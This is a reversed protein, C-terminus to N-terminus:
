QVRIVRYFGAGDPRGVPTEESSSTAMRADQVNDWRSFNTSYQVQYVKGPEASWTLRLGKSTSALSVKIDNLGQTGVSSGGPLPAPPLPPLSGTGPRNAEVILGGGTGSESGTAPQEVLYKQGRLDFSTDGMFSAWAVLFEDPGRGAVAPQIQSSNTHSNVLFEPGNPQGNELARGFVGEQSGDQGLSTWAVLQHPGISAIEPAFQDGYALENLRIADTAPTNPASFSRACIDWSDGPNPMKEAWTVTFGTQGFAAVAPGSCLNSETNIRFEDSAPYGGKTFVRAYVHVRNTHRISEAASVGQNASIWVVVFRGNALTAISPQRQNNSTFQNVLFPDGVFAGAPTLIRAYVGELGKDQHLSCWAVALNGNSLCTIVPNGQQGTTYTNVLIDRQPKMVGLTPNFTRFYIDQAGLKGGQWVFAAGGNTMFAVRPNQQPADVTLNVRFVPTLPDMQSGLKRGAIGYSKGPGDVYNDQWVLYGGSPGVVMRPAMQDGGRRGSLTYEIGERDVSQAYITSALAL